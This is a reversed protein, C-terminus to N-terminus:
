PKKLHHYKNTRNISFSASIWFSFPVKKHSDIVFCLFFHSVGPKVNSGEEEEEELHFLLIRSNCILLSTFDCQIKVYTPQDSDLFRFPNWTPIGPLFRCIKPAEQLPERTSPKSWVQWSNFPKVALTSCNGFTQFPKPWILAIKDRRERERRIM